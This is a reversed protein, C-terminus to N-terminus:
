PKAKLRERLKALGYRYRSAATNPSVGLAQGIQEFTLEGDIRLAIVARQPDPLARMAKGLREAAEEDGARGPGVAGVPDTTMAAQPRRAGAMRCATRRLSAFVYARLDDVDALRRRSRVLSVFVEQVADEAEASDGLIRLAVRLMAAGLRDYLAAFASEDGSALGLRLQDSGDHM